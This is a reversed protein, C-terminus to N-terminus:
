RKFDSPVEPVPTSPNVDPLIGKSPPAPVPTTSDGNDRLEEFPVARDQALVPSVLPYPEVEVLIERFTTSIRPLDKETAVQIEEDMGTLGSKARAVVALAAAPASKRVLGKRRAFYDVLLVLFLQIGLYVLIIPSAAGSERNFMDSIDTFPLVWMAFLNNVVHLAISAELGGTRYVLWWLMLGLSVYYINLWIDQAFHIVMFVGTSLVAAVVLGIVRHPIAATILRPFLGRTAIEESAAQLPTTSLIAVIMFWTDPTVSLNSYAETDRMILFEVVYWVLYGAAFVGLTFGLWKWRFRGVVSSLWGFGQKYFLWSTLIALPIAAIIMINNMLFVVPTIVMEGALTGLAFEPELFLLPISLLVLSIGLAAVFAAFAIFAWWWPRAPVQFFRM